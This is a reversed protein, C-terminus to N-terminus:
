KKRQRPKQTPSNHLCTISYYVRNQGEVNIIPSGGHLMTNGCIVNNGAKKSYSNFQDWIGVNANGFGRQFGFQNNVIRFTTSDVTAQLRGSISVNYSGINTKPSQTTDYRYDVYGYNVTFPDQWGSSDIYNREVDVPTRGSAGICGIGPGFSAGVRNDHIYAHTYGGILIGSPQGADGNM